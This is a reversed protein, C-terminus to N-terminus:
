ILLPMHHRAYPVSSTHLMHVFLTVKYFRSRKLLDRQKLNKARALKFIFFSSHVKVLIQLTVRKEAWTTCRKHLPFSQDFCTNLLISEHLFTNNYRVHRCRKLYTTRCREVPKKICQKVDRCKQKPVKDCKKKYSTRCKPRTECSQLSIM